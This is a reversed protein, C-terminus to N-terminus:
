KSPQNFGVHYTRVTQQTAGPSAAWASAVSNAGSATPAPGRVAIFGPYRLRDSPPGEPRCTSKTFSGLSAKAMRRSSRRSARRVLYTENASRKGCRLVPRDFFGADV